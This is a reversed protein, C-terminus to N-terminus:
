PFQPEPLIVTKKYFFRTFGEPKISDRRNNSLEGFIFYAIPAQHDTFSM